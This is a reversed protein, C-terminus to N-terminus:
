ESLVRDSRRFSDAAFHVFETFLPQTCQLLPALLEHHRHAGRQHAALQENPLSESLEVSLAGIETSKPM